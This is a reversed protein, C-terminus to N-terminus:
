PRPPTGHPMGPNGSNISCATLCTTHDSYPNDTVLCSNESEERRNHEEQLCQRVCQWWTNEEGEPFEPCSYQAACAYWGSRKCAQSYYACSPAVMFGSRILAVLRTEKLMPMFISAGPRLAVQM